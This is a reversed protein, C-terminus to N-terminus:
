VNEFTSFNRVNKLYNFHKPNEFFIKLAMLLILHELKEFYELIRLKEFEKYNEYNQSNELLKCM